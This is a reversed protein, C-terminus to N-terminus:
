SPPLQPIAADKQGSSASVHWILKKPLHLNIYLYLDNLVATHPVAKSRRPV